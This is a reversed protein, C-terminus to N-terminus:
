RRGEKIPEAESLFRPIIERQQHAAALDPAWHLSIRQRHLNVLLVKTSSNIKKTWHVIIRKFLLEDFSLLSWHKPIFNVLFTGLM